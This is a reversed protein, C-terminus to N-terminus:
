KVLREFRFTIHRPANTVSYYGTLQLKYYADGRKLLYVDFTPSIRNDGALNYRYWRKEAFTTTGFAAAPPVDSLTIADYEAAESEPTMALIQASTASANQCVCHATVGGPGAAGGNTVVNTAFFGLDWDSSATAPGDLVISRGQELSFYQWSQAANLTTTGSVGPIPGTIESNACATLTAVLSAFAVRRIAGSVRLRSRIMPRHM